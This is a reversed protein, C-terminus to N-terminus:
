STMIRESCSPPLGMIAILYADLNDLRLAELTEQCAERMRAHNKNCRCSFPITDADLTHM